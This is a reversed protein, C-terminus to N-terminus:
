GKSIVDIKRMLILKMLLNVFEQYYIIENPYLM